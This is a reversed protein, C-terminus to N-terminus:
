MVGYSQFLDKLALLRKSEDDEVCIGIHTADLERMKKWVLHNNFYRYLDDTIGLYIPVHFKDVFQRSFIFVAGNNETFSHPLSHFRFKYVTGSTGTIKLHNFM